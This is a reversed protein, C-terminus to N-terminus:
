FRQKLACCSTPYPRLCYSYYCYIKYLLYSKGGLIKELWAIRTNKFKMNTKKKNNNRRRTRRGRRRRRRMKRRWRRRRRRCSEHILGRPRNKSSVLASIIFRQASTFKESM